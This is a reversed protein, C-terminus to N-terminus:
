GHAPSLFGSARTEMGRVIGLLKAHAALFLVLEDAESSQVAHRYHYFARFVM